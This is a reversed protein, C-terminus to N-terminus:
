IMQQLERIRERMLARLREVIAPPLAQQGSAWRRLTRPNITLTAALPALWREGYLVRGVRRVREADDM